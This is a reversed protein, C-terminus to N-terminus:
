AANQVTKPTGPSTRNFAQALENLETQIEAATELTSALKAIRKRSVNVVELSKALQIFLAGSDEVMLAIEQHMAKMPAFSEALVGLQEEFTRLPAFANSLKRMHECLANIPGLTAAASQEMPELSELSAALEAVGRDQWAKIPEFAKAVSYSLEFGSETAISNKETMSGQRGEPTDGDPVCDPNMEGARVEASTDASASERNLLRNRLLTLKPGTEETDANRGIRAQLKMYAGRM